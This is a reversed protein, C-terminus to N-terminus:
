KKPTERLAAIAKQAANPGNDRNYLHTDFTDGELFVKLPRGALYDIHPLNGLAGALDKEPLEDECPYYTNSTAAYFLAKIVDAKDLGAIDCSTLNSDELVEKKKSSPLADKIESLWSWTKEAPYKVSYKDLIKEMRNIQDGLFMGMTQGSGMFFSPGVRQAFEIQGIRDKLESSDSETLQDMAVLKLSFGLVLCFKSKQLLFM